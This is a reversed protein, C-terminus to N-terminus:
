EDQKASRQRPFGIPLTDVGLRRAKLWREQEATRWRVAHLRLRKLEPHEVARICLIAGRVRCSRPAAAGPSPSSHRHSQDVRDTHLRKWNLKSM